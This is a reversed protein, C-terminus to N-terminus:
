LEFFGLQRKRIYEFEALNFWRWFGYVIMLLLLVMLLAKVTKKKMSREEVEGLSLADTQGWALQLEAQTRELEREDAELTAVQIRNRTHLRTSLATQNDLETALDANVILLADLDVNQGAHQQTAPLSPLEADNTAADNDDRETREVLSDPRASSSTSAPSSKQLFGPFRTGSAGAFNLRDATRSAPPFSNPEM